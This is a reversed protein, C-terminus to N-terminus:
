SVLFRPVLFVELLALPTHATRTLPLPRSFTRVSVVLFHLEHASTVGITVTANQAEHVADRWSKAQQEGGAARKSEREYSLLTQAPKSPPERNKRSCCTRTRCGAYSVELTPRSSQPTAGCYSAVSLAATCCLTLDAQECQESLAQM